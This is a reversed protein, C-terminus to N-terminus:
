AIVGNENKTSDVPCAVLTETLVMQAIRMGPEIKYARTSLNFLTCTVEGRDNPGVTGPLVLIGKSSLDSMPRIQAEFCLPISLSIGCPISVIRREASNLYVGENLSAYLDFTSGESLPHGVYNPLYEIGFHKVVITDPDSILYKRSPMVPSMLTQPTVLDALSPVHAKSQAEKVLEALGLMPDVVPEPETPIIGRLFADMLSKPDNEAMKAIDVHAPKGIENM